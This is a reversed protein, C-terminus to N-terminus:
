RRSTAESRALGSGAHACETPGEESMRHGDATPTMSEAAQALQTLPRTALRVALWTCVLLLQLTLVVPLWSAVPAMYPTVELTLPSGDHLIFHVQYREPKVSITDAHVHYDPGVEKAIRDALERSRESVLPMGPQGANLPFRYNDRQLRGLWNPREQASLRDLIAVSTGVEHEATNLMVSVASEYREYSQLAISLGQALLLGALIILYLRSAMSRPLWRTPAISATRIM